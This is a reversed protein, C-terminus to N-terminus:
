EKASSRPWWAGRNEDIRELLFAGLAIIATGVGLWVGVNGVGQLAFLFTSRLVMTLGATFLGAEAMPQSRLAWGATLMLVAAGAMIAVVDGIRTAGLVGADTVNFVCLVAMSFMLGLAVPKVPRGLLRLGELDGKTM